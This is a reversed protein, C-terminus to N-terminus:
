KRDNAFIELQLVNVVVKCSLFQIIDAVYDRINYNEGSMKIIIEAPTPSIDLLNKDCQKIMEIVRDTVEELTKNDRNSQFKKVESLIDNNKLISIVYNNLNKNKKFNQDLVARESVTIIQALWLDDYLMEELQKKFHEIDYKQRGVFLSKIVENGYVAIISVKIGDIVFEILFAKEPLKEEDIKHQINKDKLTKIIDDKGKLLGNYCISWDEDKQSTAPEGQIDFLIGGILFVNRIGASKICNRFSQNGIILKTFKNFKEMLEVRGATCGSYVKMKLECFALTDNSKNVIDFKQKTLVSEEFKINQGLWQPLKMLAFEFEMKDSTGLEELLKAVLNGRGAQSHQYYSTITLLSEYFSYLNESVVSAQSLGHFVEDFINFISEMNLTKKFMEQVRKIYMRKLGAEIENRPETCILLKRLRM